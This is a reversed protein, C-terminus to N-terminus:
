QLRELFMNSLRQGNEFSIGNLSLTSLMRERADDVQTASVNFDYIGEFKKFAKICIAVRYVHVAGRVYDDRCEDPTMESSGPQFSASARGPSTIALFQPTALKDNRLLVHRVSLFGTYLNGRVFLESRLSCDLTDREYRLREGDRGGAWCKTLSGDLTPVIRGSLTQSAFGAKANAVTLDTKAGSGKRDDVKDTVNTDSMDLLKGAVFNQHAILQRAVETRWEKRPPTQWARELLERAYRVPVLFALLQGGRRTAVNVGVVRGAEDIAPGGSMGSNLAGSFLMQEYIRSEVPGNYIGESILFGLELPNGLSFIREGQSLPSDRLDFAPWAPSGNLPEARLVALDHIVDVAVLTAKVTRESTPRLEIRFKEPNIALSSVVHYNTILWVGKPGDDRVVFGSGLSSQENASKLLVRVQVLRDKYRSFLDRASASPAPLPVQAPRATADVGAGKELPQARVPQFIATCILLCSFVARLTPIMTAPTQLFHHHPEIAPRGTEGTLAECGVERHFVCSEPGLHNA